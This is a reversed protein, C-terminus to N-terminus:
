TKSFSPNISIWFRLHSFEAIMRSARPVSSVNMNGQSLLADDAYQALFHDETLHLQVEFTGSKKNTSGNTPYLHETVDAFSACVALTSYEEFTCNGGPCTAPLELVRENGYVLGSRIASKMDVSIYAYDGPNEDLDILADTDQGLVIVADLNTGLEHYEIARPLSAVTDNTEVSGPHYSVLQQSLPDIAVAFLTIFAGM